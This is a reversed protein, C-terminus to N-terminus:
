GDSKNSTEGADGSGEEPLYKQVRNQSVATEEEIASAILTGLADIVHECFFKGAVSSFANRKTFVAAADDTDLLINLQHILESEVRKLVAWEDDTEATGDNRINIDALPQFMADLAKQMENFRDMISIDAPRFRITEDYKNYIPIERTGDDIVIKQISSM